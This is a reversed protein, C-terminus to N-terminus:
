SLKELAERLHEPTTHTYISTARPSAHGLLKGIRLLDVGHDKYLSTAFSHRLVHPTVNKTIGAEEAIKHITLRIYGPTMKTAMKKTVFFYPSSVKPRVNELYDRLIPALEPHLPIIRYKDGKGHWVTISAEEFNVDEIKLNTLESIRLGSYRLTQIITYIRKGKDKDQNIVSLLREIEDKTLYKPISEPKKPAQLRNSPNKQIYEERELFRFFSRFTAVMRIISNTKYLKEESLYRLFMRLHHTEIEDVFPEVKWQQLYYRHFQTLDKEYGKITEGSRNVEVKLYTLFEQIAEFLAIM